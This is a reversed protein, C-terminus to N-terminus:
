EIATKKVKPIVLSKDQPLLEAGIVNVGSEILEKIKTKNVEYKPEYTVQVVENFLDKDSEELEKVFTKSLILTDANKKLYIKGLDTKIGEEGANILKEKLKFKFVDQKAELAKRANAYAKEIEKLQAIKTEFDDNVLIYGEAKGEIASLVFEMSDDDGDILQKRLDYLETLTLNRESM